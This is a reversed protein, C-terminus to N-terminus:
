QLGQTKHLLTILCTGPSPGASVHVFCMEPGRLFVTMGGGAGAPGAPDPLAPRWGAARMAESYFQRVAAPEASAESVTVSAGTDENKMASRITAGPFGPVGPAPSAAAPGLASRRREADTQVVHFVLARGSEPEPTVLLRVVQGGERLTVVAGRGDGPLDKGFTRRLDATV